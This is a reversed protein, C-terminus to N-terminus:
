HRTKGSGGSGTLSLLRSKELLGRVEAIEKGRGIFSTLQQPLNNPHTSLSRLPPFDPQLAPHLLQYVQVPESLDRLRHFGRDQLTAGEPLDTGLLVQAPASLLTQGGYGIALLRAVRNLAPGFYDGDREQAAGSHVAMRVKLPRPGDPTEMALAPLWQQSALASDVAGRPSAFVSCLADGVTKFVHGGNAEVCARLLDDHQALALRMAEPYEEWLRTSGEIDTFLFTVIPRITDSM